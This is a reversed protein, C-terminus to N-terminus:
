YQGVVAVGGWVVVAGTPPQDTTPCLVRKGLWPGPEVQVLLVFCWCGRAL